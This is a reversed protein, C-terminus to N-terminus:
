DKLALELGRQLHSQSAGNDDKSDAIKALAHQIEASDGLKAAQELYSHAKGWLEQQVSAQGAAALLEASEGHDEVWQQLQNLQQDTNAGNLAGYHSLLSPEWNQDLATRLVREAADGHGFDALRDAYKAVLAPKSRADASLSKWRTELQSEEATSLLGLGASAELSATAAEDLWSRKRVAPLLENLEEWNGTASLAQALLGTARPNRPQTKVLERATALAADSDGANLKQETLGLDISFKAGHHHQVAKQLYSEKYEPKGLGEAAEAAALYHLVGAQGEPVDKTLTKEARAYQGEALDLSGTVLRQIASDTARRTKAKGFSSPARFIMGVLRLLLYLAFFAILVGYVVYVLKATVVNGQFTVQVSGADQHLFVATMVALAFLFLAVLFTKM